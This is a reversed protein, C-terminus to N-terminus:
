YYKPKKVIDVKRAERVEGATISYLGPKFQVPEIFSREILYSSLDPKVNLLIM